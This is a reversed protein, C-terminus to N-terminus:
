GVFAASFRTGGGVGDDYASIILGILYHDLSSNANAFAGSARSIGYGSTGANDVIRHKADALTKYGASISVAGPTFVAGLPQGATFSYPSAFMDMVWGQATSTVANAGILSSKQQVPTGLPDSYLSLTCDNGWAAYAYIGMVKGAFPPVYLQGYEKAPSSGSNFARTAYSSVVDSMELWGFAGDSFTFFFGPIINASGAFFNTGNYYTNIPRQFQVTSTGVSLVVTDSGGKATLQACVAVLDGNAITKSGSTPTINNFGNTALIGSGGTVVTKVDFTVTGSSSVGRGPRGTTTDVAAIGFSFSSAANALTTSFTFFGLASQGTTDITHSGGDSTILRGIFHNAFGAGGMAQMAGAGFGKWPDPGFYSLGPIAQLTM